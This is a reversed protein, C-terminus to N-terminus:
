EEHDETNRKAGWTSAGLFIRMCEWDLRHHLRGLFLQLLVVGLQVLRLLLRDNELPVAFLSRLLRFEPGRMFLFHRGRNAAVDFGDHRGADRVFAPVQPKDLSGLVHGPYTKKGNNRSHSHAVFSFIMRGITQKNLGNAM